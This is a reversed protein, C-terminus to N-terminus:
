RQVRGSGDGNALKEVESVSVRNFDGPISHKLCSAAVAFELATRHDDYANLGYILGGAFSDGGGVRDVIDNMQYRRSVNFGNRDNLCAAWGNIDASVSERLTIAIMKMEPYQELVANSLAEYKARDLEGSEVAVDTTIGLSKQVDEENAIAVDVYKALECMVEQASVGYKWLNKRYNLDCSVTIGRKKAEKVSELSLQMASESIAPTIGTIHFWDVGDFAKDWDIDGPKALAIASYERDYVVRSPRQMAGTELYYIGVRGKGRVIKSTDVGLGRLQRVCEDAIPNEPLVTLYQADMGYNALSVAVNAEGGGFTAELMPSQFFREWGPSKLRLMIEGFTLIKMTDERTKKKAPLRVLYPAKLIYETPFAFIKVVCLLTVAAGLAIWAARGIVGSEVFLKGVGADVLINRIVYHWFCIQLTRAGGVTIIRRKGVPCAFIFAGGAIIAIAYCLLRWLFGFTRIDAAYANRGTFLPRLMYLEDLHFYCAAAWLVLIVIAGVRVGKKSAFRELSAHDCMTGVVYFPYFVLIRSLTLFDGVSAFYGGACALAVSVALVIRKDARKLLRTLLIFVAMAFMFWPLKDDGWLWFEPKLGFAKDVLWFTGKFALYLGLYAAVKQPINKDKHFLGSIFFFAPMHFSYLFLFISRYVASEGTYSGAFHGIVVSAILFFKANDWLAVREKEAM